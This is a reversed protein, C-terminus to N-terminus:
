EETQRNTQEVKEQSSSIVNLQFKVHAERNILHRSRFLIPDAAHMIM